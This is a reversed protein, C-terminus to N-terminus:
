GIRKLWADPWHTVNRALTSENFPWPPQQIAFQPNRAVFEVAAAAPNDAAWAAEGRPVETLDRMLGDTAVIYSGPSVLRAYAELEATVHAKSHNSDLVVLVSEGPRIAAEVAAVVAPSTSSGEILTILDRLPHADLRRRNQPRIDIDIAIVRGRGLLRCLSASFVASGGHAIGTEVIVDPQLRAVVEQYRIMDEPLQIIPVGLWSFTYTYKQNWGLRIWLESLAEFAEKGYLDFSQGDREFTRTQTDILWKM